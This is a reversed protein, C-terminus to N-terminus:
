FSIWLAEYERVEVACSKAEKKVEKDDDDILCRMQHM